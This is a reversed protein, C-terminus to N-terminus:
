GIVSHKDSGSEILQKFRQFLRNKQPSGATGRRKRISTFSLRQRLRFYILMDFLM